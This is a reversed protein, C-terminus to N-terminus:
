LRRFWWTSRSSQRMRWHMSQSNVCEKIRHNWYRNLSNTKTDHMTKWKLMINCRRRYTRCNNMRSNRYKYYNMVNMPLWKISNFCRFQHYITFFIQMTSKTERWTQCNSLLNPSRITPSTTIVVFKDLNHQYFPNTLTKEQFQTKVKYWNQM